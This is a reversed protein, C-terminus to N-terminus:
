DPKQLSQLAWPPTRAMLQLGKPAVMQPHSCSSCLLPSSFLNVMKPVNPGDLLYLIQEDMSDKMM